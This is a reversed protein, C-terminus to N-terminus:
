PERIVISEVAGDDSLYFVLGLEAYTLARPSGPAGGGQSGGYIQIVRDRGDGIAVGSSTRAAFGLAAIQNLRGNAFFFSVGPVQTVSPLPQMVASYRLFGDGSQTLGNILPTGLADLVNRPTMGFKAEFSGVTAGQHPVFVATLVPRLVSGAAASPRPANGTRLTVFEEYTMKPPDRLYPAVYNIPIAGNLNQGRVFTFSNIGIVEGRMNLLPGGSSGPSIPAQHQIFSYGKGQDLRIASIIGETVTLELGLPNGIAVVQQGPVLKDSDGIRLAPLGKAKILLVAMDRREEDYIIRVDDYRDGRATKVILHAGPSPDIVHHNTVIVGTPDVLFGSAQSLPKGVADVMTILVVAPASNRFIQEPSLPPSATQSLAPTSLAVILVVFIILAAVTSILYTRPHSHSLNRGMM